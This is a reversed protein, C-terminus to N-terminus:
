VFVRDLKFIMRYNIIINLLIFRKIALRQSKHPDWQDYKICDAGTNNYEILITIALKTVLYM